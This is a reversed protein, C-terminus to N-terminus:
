DSAAVVAKPPVTQQRTEDETKGLISRFQTFIGM